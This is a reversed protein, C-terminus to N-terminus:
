EDFLKSITTIIGGMSCVLAWGAVLVAAARKMRIHKTPHDDIGGLAEMGAALPMAAESHKLVQLYALCPILLSVMGGLVSGKFDLVLGIDTLLAAPLATSSVLVLDLKWGGWTSNGSFLSSKMAQYVLPYTTLVVVLMAFRAVVAVSSSASYNTLVNVATDGKFTEYSIAGFTGYILLAGAVAAGSALSFRAASADELEAYFKPANYHAELWTAPQGGTHHHTDAERETTLKHASVFVMFLMALFSVISIPKLSSLNQFRSFPFLICVILLGVVASRHEFTGVLKSEGALKDELFYVLGNEGALFDCSLLVFSLCSLWTYMGLGYKVARKPLGAVGALEEFSAISQQSYQDCVIGVLSFTSWCLVGVLSLVLAGNGPSSRAANAFDLQKMCWPVSLLGSGVMNNLINFSTTIMSAKPLLPPREVDQERPLLLPEEM